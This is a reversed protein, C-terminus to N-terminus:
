KLLLFGIMALIGVAMGLAYSQVDGAQLRRLRLACARFFRGTGNVLGDDVLGADLLKWLVTHSFRRIPSVFLFDYIEDVYYKHVLLDFVRPFTRALREPVSRNKLYMWAALLTGATAALISLAVFGLEVFIAHEGHAAHAPRGVVPELFGEFLNHALNWSEPIGLFGVSLAGAALLVLPVTMAPPSEHAHDHLHPDRPEGFFTLFVLRFMYFATIGAGTWLLLWLALSGHDHSSYAQWLIEDKSFFGSLPPFGCIALTAILFTWFTWPMKKRLAGMKFIDTENGMAHMVSGAGLFLLAKFFAHTMLHFIGAAYAGLGVAVFMYGLQSVTSYALIKKIDRQCIGITAAFVATLAGVWTVWQMAFDSTIYLFHMRAVMYVGATVMTAAHILASVPTPGAMADPLWVYLPLQASKGMAGLFLLLCIATVVGPSLLNAHARIESFDITWIGHQGLSWFLLFIGLLFGFDGIRNVVFAKMGAAAKEPDEYWFGILFYSCLGVGEWGLFLLLLNGGTVLVLMMATFLNLYAFYRAYSRDGHMYGVSYVHILFGIGTVVLTMVSSLPDLRFAMQATFGGSSIWTFLTDALMRHEGPLERLKLFALGSVVLSGLPALCAVWHVRRTQLSSLNARSGLGNILFGILPLAPIWRLLPFVVADEL